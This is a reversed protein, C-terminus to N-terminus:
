LPTTSAKSFSIPFSVAVSLTGGFASACRQLAALPLRGGPAGLEFSGLCASPEGAASIGVTDMPKHGNIDGYSAAVQADLTVCRMATSSWTTCWPNRSSIEHELGWDHLHCNLTQHKEVSRNCGGNSSCVIPSCKSDMTALNPSRVAYANLMDRMWIPANRQLMTTTDNRTM